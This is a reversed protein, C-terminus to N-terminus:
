DGDASKKNCNTVLGIRVDEFAPEFHIVSPVYLCYWSCGPCIHLSYKGTTIHLILDVALRDCSGAGATHCSQICLSVQALFSKVLASTSHDCDFEFMKAKESMM